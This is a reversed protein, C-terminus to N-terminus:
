FKYLVEKLDRSFAEYKECADRFGRALSSMRAASSPRIWLRALDQPYIEVQGSSGNIYRYIQKQGDESLLYGAVYWAVAAKVFRGITIHGDVIAPFDHNYVAVRGITGDGTSNILLDNRIVGARAANAEYFSRSVSRALGLDVYGSRVSASKLACVNQTGGASDVTSGDRRVLGEWVLTSPDVEDDAYVPQVGRHLAGVLKAGDGGIQFAGPLAQTVRGVAAYEDQHFEPELIHNVRFLGQEPDALDLVTESQDKIVLLAM